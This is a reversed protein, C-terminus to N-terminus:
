RNERRTATNLLRVLSLKSASKSLIMAGDSALALSLEAQKSEAEGYADLTGRQCWERRQHQRPKNVRFEIHAPRHRENSEVRDGCNTNRIRHFRGCAHNRGMSTSSRKSTSTDSSRNTLLCFV